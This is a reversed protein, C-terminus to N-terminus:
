VSCLWLVRQLAQAYLKTHSVCINSHAAHCPTHYACPCILLWLLLLGHCILLASCSAPWCVQELKFLHKNFQQQLRENAYNICLQEFSNKKFSEFGYIDLISIFKGSLRKESALSMNIRDVILGFVAAYLAKALADRTDISKELNLNKEYTEQGVTMLRHTLAFVLREPPVGLLECVNQFAEDMNVRTEDDNKAVFTVNGLWLAASVISFISQQLEKGIKVATMADCVEKFDKADDVGEITTVAGPSDLYKFGSTDVPLKWAERDEKSAGRIM